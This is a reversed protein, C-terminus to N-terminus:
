VEIGVFEFAFFSDDAISRKLYAEDVIIKGSDEPPFWDSHHRELHEQLSMGKVEGVDIKVLIKAM